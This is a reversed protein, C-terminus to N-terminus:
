LTTAEADSILKKAEDPKGTVDASHRALITCRSSTVEAFGESVFVSKSIKTASDYIDIVGPRLSSIMPSHGELVGFDGTIGPVVVMEVDQSFVLEEPTVLEVNLKM